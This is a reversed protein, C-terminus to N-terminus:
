GSMTLLGDALRDGGRRHSRRGGLLPFDDETELGLRGGLGHRPELFPLDTLNEEVFIRGAGDSRDEQGRVRCPPHVPIM